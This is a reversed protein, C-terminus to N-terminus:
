VLNVLSFITQISEELQAMSCISRHTAMPGWLPDVGASLSISVQMRQWSSCSTNAWAWAMTSVAHTWLDVTNVCHLPFIGVLLGSPWDWALNVITLYTDNRPWSSSHEKNKDRSPVSADYGSKMGGSSATPVWVPLQPCTMCAVQQCFHTIISDALSIKASQIKETYTYTHTTWM